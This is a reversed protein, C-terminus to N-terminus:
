GRNLPMIKVQALLFDISAAASGGAEPGSTPTRTSSRPWTTAPLKQPPRRTLVQTCCVTSSVDIEERLGEVEAKTSRVASEGSAAAAPSAVATAAAAARRQRQQLGVKARIHDLDLRRPAAVRQARQAHGVGGAGREPPAGVHTGGGRDHPADGSSVPDRGGARAQLEARQLTDGRQLM